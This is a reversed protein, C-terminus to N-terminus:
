AVESYILKLQRAADRCTPIKANKALFAERRATSTTAAEILNALTAPDNPEFYGAHNEGLVATNGEIRSVIVPLRCFVAQLLALAQGEWFSALVFFDLAQFWPVSPRQRGAFIIQGAVDQEIAFTELEARSVGDGVFVAKPRLGRRRLISLAKITAKHNKVPHLSAVTGFVVEDRDLGLKKRVAQKDDAPRFVDDDIANPLVEILDPSISFRSSIEARTQGSLTLIKRAGILCSHFFLRKRLPMPGLTKQQHVIAAIGALRAAAVGFLHAHYTQSHVVDITERQLWRSFKWVALLSLRKTPFLPILEVPWGASRAEEGLMGLERLCVFRADVEPALHPYVGLAFDEAGGVPMGIFLFAVKLAGRDARSTKM